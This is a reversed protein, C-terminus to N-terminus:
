MRCVGADLCVHLLEAVHQLLTQARPLPPVLTEAM